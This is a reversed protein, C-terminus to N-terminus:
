PIACIIDPHKEQTFTEMNHIIDYTSVDTVIKRSSM